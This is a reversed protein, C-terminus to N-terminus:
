FPSISFAFAECCSFTQAWRADPLDWLLWEMLKWMTHAFMHCKAWDLCLWTKSLSTKFCDTWYIGINNNKKPEFPHTSIQTLWLFMTIQSRHSMFLINLTFMIMIWGETLKKGCIQNMSWWWIHFSRCPGHTQYSEESNSYLWSYIM